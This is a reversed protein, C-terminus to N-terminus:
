KLFAATNFRARRVPCAKCQRRCIKHEPKTRGLIDGPFRGTFGSSFSSAGLVGRVISEASGTEGLLLGFSTYRTGQRPLPRM